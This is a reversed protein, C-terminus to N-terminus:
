VVLRLAQNLCHTPLELNMTGSAELFGSETKLNGVLILQTPYKNGNDQSTTKHLKIQTGYDQHIKTTYKCSKM